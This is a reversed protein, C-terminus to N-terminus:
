AKTAFIGAPNMVEAYLDPHEQVEPKQTLVAMFADHSDVTHSLAVIQGRLVTDGGNSVVPAATPAAGADATPAASTEAKGMEGLFATPVLVSRAFDEEGIETRKVHFRLGEWIAAMDPTGRGQITPGAGVALAAEIFAWYNTSKNIGSGSGVITKGHDETEWGNGISYFQSFEPYDPHDSTGSLILLLAEGGQYEADYNFEAKTITIDADDLLGTTEVPDWGTM